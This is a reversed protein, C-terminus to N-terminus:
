ASTVKRTSLLLSAPILSEPSLISTSPRKLRSIFVVTLAIKGLHGPDFNIMPRYMGSKLHSAKAHRHKYLINAICKNRIITSQKYM